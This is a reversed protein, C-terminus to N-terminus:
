RATFLWDSANLHGHGGSHTLWGWGSIGDFGRHGSDDDTDGLRLTFPHSGAYQDLDYTEGAGFLQTITGVMTGSEADDVLLDDDGGALEVNQYTADVQWLGSLVADYMNGVDLGGFVVGSITVMDGDVVMTMDSQPHNFNFTFVDASDGGVLGDLRLGYGPPAENADPHNSLRYTGDPVLTSLGGVPGAGGGLDQAIQSETYIWMEGPSLIMDGGDDSAPDFTPNFDDSNDFPTGHDDTVVVDALDFPVDGTNTVKYTWTVLDGTEFRLSVATADDTVTPAPQPMASAPASSLIQQEILMQETVLIQGPVAWTLSTLDHLNSFTIEQASGTPVTVTERVTGGNITTGTFKWQPSSAALTRARVSALTFPSGDTARLDVTGVRRSIIGGGVGGFGADHDTTFIFGREEYPNQSFEVDDFELTTDASDVAVINDMFLGDPLTWKISDAIQNLGEFTKTVFLADDPITVSQNEIVESGNVTTFTFQLPYTGPVTSGFDIAYLAIARGTTSRLEITESASVTGAAASQLDNVVLGSPTSISLGDEEYTDLQAPLAEFTLSTAVTGAFTMQDAATGGFLSFSVSTVDVMRSIAITEFGLNGNFAIPEVETSLDSKTGTFTITQPGLVDQDLLSISTLTFPLPDDSTLTIDEPVLIAAGGDLSKLAGDTAVNFGDEDYTAAGNVLADFDIQRDTGDSAVITDVTQGRRMDWSVSVVDDWLPSSFNATGYNLTQEVPDGNVDIGTFTIPRPFDRQPDDLMVSRPTFPGGSAATLTFTDVDDVFRFGGLSPAILGGTSLTFGDESYTSRETVVNAFDLTRTLSM